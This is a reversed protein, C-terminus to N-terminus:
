IGDEAVASKVSALPYIRILGTTPVVVSKEKSPVKLFEVCM